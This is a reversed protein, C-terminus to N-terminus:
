GLTPIFGKVFKIVSMTMNLAMFPTCIGICVIISQYPVFTKIIGGVFLLTNESLQASIGGQIVQSITDSFDGLLGRFLSIFGDSIVQIISNIIDAM